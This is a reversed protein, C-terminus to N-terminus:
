PNTLRLVWKGGTRAIIVAFALLSDEISDYFKIELM